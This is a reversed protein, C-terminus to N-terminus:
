RSADADLDRGHRTALAEVAVRDSIGEVLVVARLETARPDGRRRRGGSEVLRGRGTRARASRRRAPVRARRGAPGRATWEQVFRQHNPYLAALQAATFPVTTGFLGCFGGGSQGLGSLVALPADVQPSRVGGQVNGNADLAFTVPTLSTTALPRAHAPPRGGRVWSDLANFAAQLVWHQPGSNIPTASALLGGTPHLLADLMAPAARGDGPDSFGM